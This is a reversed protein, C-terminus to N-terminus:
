STWEDKHLLATKKEVTIDSNKLTSCEIQLNIKTAYGNECCSSQWSLILLTKENERAEKAKKIFTKTIKNYHDKM